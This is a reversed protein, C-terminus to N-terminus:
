KSGGKEFMRNLGTFPASVDFFLTHKQGKEDPGTIQDFERGDSTILAQEEETVGNIALIAREESMTVVVYATKVSKGDGSGLLSDLLGKRIADERSAGKPDGARALCESLFGHLAFNTYDIALSAKAKATAAACDNAELAKYADVFLSRSDDSYPAYDPSAIYANRLATFDVSEGAEAKAVLGAYAAPAPDALAAQALLCAAACWVPISRM